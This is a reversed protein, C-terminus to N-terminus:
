LSLAFRQLLFLRRHWGRAFRLQSEDDLCLQTYYKARYSLFDALAAADAQQAKALTQPGIYGDIGVGLTRQLFRIADRPAHQVAADFVMAALRPPLESCRCADWYRERYRAIAQERTPPWPMDQNWRRALGYWTDGGKDASDNSHEGEIDPGLLWNVALDFCSESM